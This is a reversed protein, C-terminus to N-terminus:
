ARDHSDEEAVYHCVLDVAAVGPLGVLWACTAQQADLSEGELTVVLRGGGAEDRAHVAAGTVMAVGQAVEELRGPYAAILLGSVHWEVAPQTVM